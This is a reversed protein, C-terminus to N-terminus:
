RYRARASFTASCSVNAVLGLTTLGPGGMLEDDSAALRCAYKSVGGGTQITLRGAGDHSIVLDTGAALGLSSFYFYTDGARLTLTDLTGSDHALCSM